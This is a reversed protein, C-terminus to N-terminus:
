HREYKWNRSKREVLWAVAQALRKARTAETKAEELWDIYENQRSTSLAQFGAQAAPMAQLAALFYGPVQAPKAPQKPKARAPTTIGAENLAMAAKILRAMERPGPLDRVTMLRGFHGMTAEPKDGIGLLAAKWFSLSAHAKFAAMSAMVGHHDFHPFGWKITEELDPCHRHMQERIQELIPQAFPASRAIYADVRPDRTGM